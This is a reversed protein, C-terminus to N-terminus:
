TSRRPPQTAYEQRRKLKACSGCLVVCKKLLEARREDSQSWISTVRVTKEAPNKYVVRLDQTGFCLNCPGNEAIWLLRRRWMWIAQFRRQEEISKYPM